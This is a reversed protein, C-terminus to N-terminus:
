AHTSPARGGDVDCDRMLVSSWHIMEINMRLSILARRYEPPNENETTTSYMRSTTVDSKAM